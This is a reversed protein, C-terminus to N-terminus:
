RQVDVFRITVAGDPSGGISKVQFVGPGDLKLDRYSDKGMKTDWIHMGDESVIEFGIGGRLAELGFCGAARGDPLSIAVSEFGPMNCITRFILNGERDRCPVGEAQPSQESRRLDDSCEPAINLDALDGEGEKLIGEMMGARPPAWNSPPFNRPGPSSRRFTSGLRELDPPPPMHFNRVWAHFEGPEIAGSGDADMMRFFADLMMHRAEEPDNTMPPPPMDAPPMFGEPPGLVVGPHMPPHDGMMDGQAQVVGLSLAMIASVMALKRLM